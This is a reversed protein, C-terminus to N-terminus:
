ARPSAARRAPRAPEPSVRPSATSAVLHARERVQRARRRAHARSVRRRPAGLAQLRGDVEDARGTGRAGQPRRAQAPRDQDCRHRFPRLADHRGDHADSPPLAGRSSPLHTTQFPVARIQSPFGACSLWSQSESVIEEASGRKLTGDCNGVHWFTLPRRTESFFRKKKRSKKKENLTKITARARSNQSPPTIIRVRLRFIEVADAHCENPSFAEPFHM